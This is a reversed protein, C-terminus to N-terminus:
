QAESEDTKHRKALAYVWTKLEKQKKLSSILQQKKETSLGLYEGSYRLRDTHYLLQNLELQVQPILEPHLEAHPIYQTEFLLTDHVIEIPTIQMSFPKNLQKALNQTAELQMLVKSFKYKQNNM